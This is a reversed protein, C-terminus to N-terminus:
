TSARCIRLSHVVAPGALHGDKAVNKRITSKQKEAEAENRAIAQELAELGLQLQEEPLRASELADRGPMGIQDRGGNRNSAPWWELKIGAM